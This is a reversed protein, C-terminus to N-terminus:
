DSNGLTWTNANLTSWSEEAMDASLIDEMVDAVGADEFNGRNQEWNQFVGDLLEVLDPFNNDFDARETDTLSEWAELLNARLTDIDAAYLENGVAFGLVDSAVQAQTLSAGAVGQPIGAVARFYFNAFADADPVFVDYGGTEGTGFRVLVYSRNEDREGLIEEVTADDPQLNVSYADSEIDKLETFEDLFAEWGAPKRLNVMNVISQYTLDDLEGYEGFIMTYDDVSGNALMLMKGIYASQSTFEEDLPDDDIVKENIVMEDLMNMDWPGAIYLQYTTIGGATDENIRFYENDEELIGIGNLYGQVLDSEMDFYVAVADAIMMLYMVGAYDEDPVVITLYDGEEVFEWSGDTIYENGNANLTITIRDDGLSETYELEPYFSAYLDVFENYESDPLILAEYIGTLTESASTSNEAANSDAPAATEAPATEVAATEVPAPTEQAQKSQGGCAALCLLLVLCLSLATLRRTVKKQDM